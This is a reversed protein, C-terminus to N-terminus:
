AQQLKQISQPFPVTLSASFSFCYFWFAFSRLIDKALALLEPYIM